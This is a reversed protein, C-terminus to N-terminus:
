RFRQDSMNSWEDGDGSFIGDFNIDANPTMGTHYMMDPQGLGSMIDNGTDMQATSADFPQQGQMMYPPIPGFLQGELDDYMTANTGNSLFMQPVQHSGGSNLGGVNEQKINEFEMMPQNPYAFPDASPFMMASLDPLGNSSGFQPLAFQSGNMSATSSSDPTGSASLDTPSVLEHFSQRLNPNSITNIQFRKDGLSGKQVGTGQAQTPM